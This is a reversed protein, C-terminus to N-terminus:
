SFSLSLAISLSLLSLSLSLSLPSLALSLSLSSLSLALSLLPGKMDIRGGISYAPAKNLYIATDPSM